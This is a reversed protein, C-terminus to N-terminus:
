KDGIIYKCGNPGIKASHIDGKPVDFREGERATKEGTELFLTMQGELIIHATDALHAHNKYFKNPPDEIVCVHRYGDQELKEKLEEVEM